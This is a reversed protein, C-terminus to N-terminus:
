HPMAKLRRHLAKSTDRVKECAAKVKEIKLKAKTLEKVASALAKQESKETLKNAKALSVLEQCMPLLDKLLGPLTQENGYRFIHQSGSFVKKTLDLAHEIKQRKSDDSKSRAAEFQQRWGTNAPKTSRRRLASPEDGQSETHLEELRLKLSDFTPRDKANMEWCDSMIPYLGKPCHSPEPMRYGDELKHIVDRAEMEPYPVDGYTVIEWLVIGFSWVDSKTSFADYCLAEPATWKIPMKTGTRATYLDDVVRGMGFDAIKILLNDGVLCNRAALDRHITNQAELCAMGDAIQFSMYLQATEDIAARSNPRRLFSLLDGHPVFEQVIYMPLSQSCVGILKVLNPHQLKKMVHAEKMFEETEMSDEKITKVAVIMKHYKAQYVEGYNGGGLRDGLQIDDRKLEGGTM